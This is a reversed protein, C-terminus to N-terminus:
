TSSRSAPPSSKPRRRSTSSNRRRGIPSLVKSAVPGREDIPEGVVNIIRGLMEQGVPVAIAEGTDTVEAGRQLGETSDMAITRVMNEGLHQAVELVLTKGENKAHLANLIEPLDGGFQVDVVAGMIQSITGVNNKAM